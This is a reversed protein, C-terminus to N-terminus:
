WSAALYAYIKDNSSQSSQFYYHKDNHPEAYIKDNSSQSSQFYYHKENYSQISKIMPARFIIINEIHPEANM